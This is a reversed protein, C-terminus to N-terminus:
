RDLRSSGPDVLHRSRAVPGQQVALVGSTIALQAGQIGAAVHQYELAVM